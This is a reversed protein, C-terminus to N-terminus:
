GGRGTFLYCRVPNRGAVASLGGDGAAIVGVAGLAGLDYIVQVAVAVRFVHREVIPSCGVRGALLDGTELNDEFGVAIADLGLRGSACVERDLGAFVGDAFAFVQGGGVLQAGGDAQGIAARRLGGLGAVIQAQDFRGDVDFEVLGDRWRGYDMGTLVHDRFEFAVQRGCGVVDGGVFDDDFVRPVIRLVSKPVREIQIRDCRGLNRAIRAQCDLNLGAIVPM